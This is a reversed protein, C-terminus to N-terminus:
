GARESTGAPVVFFGAGLVVAGFVVVVLVVVVVVRVGVVVVRFGVVDTVALPFVTVRVGPATAVLVPVIAAPEVSLRVAFLVIQVFVL